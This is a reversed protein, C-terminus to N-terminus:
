FIYYAKPTRYQNDQLHWVRSFETNRIMQPMRKVNDDIPKLNLNYPIFDNKPPLALKDNFGINLWKQIKEKPIDQQKYKTSFWKETQDAITAFKKAVVIVRMRDPTLLNVIDTILDPKFEHFLYGVSLCDNLPIDHLVESTNVCHGMSHEKEKFSFMIERIQKLEDFIWQKPGERKLLNIYQFVLAIIDDICEIGQETLDVTVTFFAFGRSTTSDAGLCTCWNRSKLASLLSGPGEHGILHSIIDAPKSKYHARMDPIPFKLELSRTDMNPVVFCQKQLCETTFPNTTWKPAIASNNKIQSFLPVVLEQLEKISEKGLVVLSMINASYWREHFSLLEKRVNINNKLPIEKLTEMCGIAFKNYDHKPDSLSKETQSCKWCDTPINGEYESHVANMERETASETFLPEIFFQAFRDLAGTLFDPSIDFHYNTNTEATYANSDGGNSSIYKQYNNEKPYKKTGMFLMHELFHALGQVTRPDSMSGVAVDMAAASKDAEADSILVVKLGNRLVLGKYQRKDAISKTINECKEAIFESNLENESMITMAKQILQVIADSQYYQSM